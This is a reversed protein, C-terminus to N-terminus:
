VVVSAVQLHEAIVLVDPNEQSLKSVIYIYLNHTHTLPLSDEM